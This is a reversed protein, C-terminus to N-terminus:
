KDAVKTGTPYVNMLTTKKKERLLGQMIYLKIKKRLSGAEGSSNFNKKQVGLIEKNKM